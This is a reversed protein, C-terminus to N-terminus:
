PSTRPNSNYTIELGPFIRNPNKGIQPNQEYLMQWTVKRHLPYDSNEILATMRKAIGTLNEGEQVTLRINHDYKKVHQVVTETRPTVDHQYIPSTCSVLGVAAITLATVANFLRSTM